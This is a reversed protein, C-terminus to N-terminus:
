KKGKGQMGNALARATAPDQSLNPASVGTAPKPSSFANTFANSISDWTSSSNNSDDNGQMYSPLFDGNAARGGLTYNAKGKVKGGKAEKDFVMDIFKHAKKRSSSSTKKVVIEGKTLMAPVNDNAPHDGPLPAQGPIRGGHAAFLSAMSVIPGIESVLGGANYGKIRGGEWIGSAPSLGSQGYMAAGSSLNPDTGGSSGGGGSGAGGFMGMIQAPNIAGTIGAFNAANANAGALLGSYALGPNVANQAIANNQMIQQQQMNQNNQLIGQSGQQQLGSGIQAGQGAYGMYNGIAQQQANTTVNATQQDFNNLAQIGASSTQYGPGLQQQLQQQLASRQQARQNMLPALSAASQGNMLALAQGGAAQAAPSYSNILSQGQQVQQTAVGLQQQLNQIEQPSAGAINLAQSRDSQQQGLQANAAQGQLSAIGSQGTINSVVGGVAQGVGGV